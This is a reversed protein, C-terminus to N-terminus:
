SSMASHYSSVIATESSPRDPRAITRRSSPGPGPLSRSTPQPPPDCMSAKASAPQVGAPTSTEGSCSRSARPRPQPPAGAVDDLRSGLLKREAVCQEIGGDRHPRVRVHVVEASRQALHRAHKPRPRREDVEADMGAEDARMRLDDGALAHWAEM